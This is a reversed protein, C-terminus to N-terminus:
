PKLITSLVCSLPWELADYHRVQKSQEALQVTLAENEVMIAGAAEQLAARRAEAVKVSMLRQLNELDEM